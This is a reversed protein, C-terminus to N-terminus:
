NDRRWLCMKFTKCYDEMEVYSQVVRLAQVHEEWTRTHIVIDDIYSDVNDLGALLKRMARVLTAASNVMGFPMKLFEYSGDPTVFATKHIESEAVPIQWYGKSM